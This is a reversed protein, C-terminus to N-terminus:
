ALSPPARLGRRDALARRRRVHAGVERRADKAATQARRARVSRAVLVSALACGARALMTFVTAALLATALVIVWGAPTFSALQLGGIAISREISEQAILWIAGLAALRSASARTPSVAAFESVFRSRHGRLAAVGAVAVALFSAASLAAVLPEYWGFYGHVGDEPFISRYLMAHASLACLAIPGVRLLRGLVAFRCMNPM